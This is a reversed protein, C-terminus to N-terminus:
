GSNDTSFGLGPLVLSVDTGYERNFEPGIEIEDRSVALGIGASNSQGGNATGTIADLFSLKAASACGGPLGYFHLIM